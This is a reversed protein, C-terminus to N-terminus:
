YDCGNVQSARLYALTRLKRDLKASRMAGDFDIFKQLFVPAHAMAKFITPVRGLAKEFREYIPQVEPAADEKEVYSIRAM